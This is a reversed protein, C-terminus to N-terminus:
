GIHKYPRKARKLKDGNNVPWENNLRVEKAVATNKYLRKIFQGEEKPGGMNNRKRFLESKIKSITDITINILVNGVIVGCVM